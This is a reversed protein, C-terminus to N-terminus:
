KFIKKVSTTTGDSYRTVVINVGQFPTKSTMGLSNVYEVGVVEGHIANRGVINISTTVDGDLDTPYVKYVDGAAKSGSMKRIVAHFDYAEGIQLSGFDKSNLAPDITFSGTFGYSNSTQNMKTGDWVAWIIKAYEQAKPTSFFYGQQSGVFNAAMYPNPTYADSPNTLEIVDNEKVAQTLVLKPNGNEKSFTGTLNKVYAYTYTVAEPFVVEIWNSQDFDMQSTTNNNEDVITYDKDNAGPTQIDVAMGNEDKFWISTGQKYVGLLGNTNSIRYVTGDVGSTCLEALTMEAPAELTTFLVSETWETTNEGFIGQVQVEYETEPDLGEITYPSTVNNVTVWEGAPVENAYIGIADIFMFDQDTCNYHRFAIRGNQGAYASLDVEQETWAVANPTLMDDTVPVFDAIDTSGTTCVYIRYTEQYNAGDDMVYYRLMGGLDEIEPSIMWQDPNLATGAYSRSMVCHTGEFRPLVDNSFATQPDVVQWNYSDGDTNVLTWADIGNEFGEFFNVDAKAAKRYRLNYSDQSGNWNAVATKDTVEIVTLDFPMADAAATTFNVSETWNSTVEGYIGQVQVEYETEPDLGEITYPNTANDVNVWDGAAIDDGEITFDDILLYNCDESVHHIAIYGKQGKYASLDISVEKWADNDSAPAMDQLTVTFDEESNGGISLLVEYSDPWQGATAVWFTLNNGFTVQPTILWNNADYASSSWSWASAVYDGSHAGVDFGNNPNFAYWGATQPAEGDTYVTWNDLGNEFDDSFFIEKSAAKRYRLNYSEASGEWSAKATHATIDSVALETPIPFQLPTTFNVPDSWNSKEEGCNGRVYATYATNETLGTITYTAEGSVAVPTAEDPNFGAAGYVVEWADQEEDGPTWTLTAGNYVVNTAALATPRPCSVQNIQFTTLTGPAITSAGTDSSYKHGEHEFIVSGDPGTITFGCEHTYNTGVWVLNYDVGYCLKVTGTVHDDTSNVTLTAVTINTGALVFQLQNGGWGDNYADYLDYTVEGMDSEECAPTQFTGNLWASEGDTYISKIRVNYATGNNLADLTIEKVSVTGASTWEEDAAKKYEVGWSTEDAGAEWTLKASNPTIDSVELNKPKGYVVTGAPVYTFTTKPVFNRQTPSVADLSNASYGSVSAGTVTTGLFTASKYSGTQTVYVGILLNGGNYTYPTSFELSLDDPSIPGEYVLTAGETGYFASITNESVEKMFVQFVVNSWGASATSNLYWELGTIVSGPALNALAEAAYVTESKQYDDVYLGYIPVNSNTNTGDYVTLTEQAFAATFAAMVFLLLSLLKKNM